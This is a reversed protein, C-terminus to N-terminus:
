GESRRPELCKRKGKGAKNLDMGTGSRTTNKQRFRVIFNEKLDLSEDSINEGLEHAGMSPPGESQSAEKPQVQPVPIQMVPDVTIESIDNSERVTGSSTNVVASVKIRQQVGVSCSGTSALGKEMRLKKRCSPCYWKRKPIASLPRQLCYTHYGDDCGDCLVILEDNEDVNCVRCLCSPCYWTDPPISKLPPKLCSLHFFKSHCNTNSCEILHDDDRKGASCVKCVKRIVPENNHMEPEQTSNHVETKEGFSQMEFEERDSPLEAEKRNCDPEVEERGTDPEMQRSLRECVVCHHEENGMNQVSAMKEKRDDYSDVESLGKGSEACSICYWSGTPIEELPPSLCYMHYAAECADCLLICDDHENVGCARCVGKIGSLDPGESCPLDSQECLVCENICEMGVNKPAIGKNKMTFSTEKDTSMDMDMPTCSLNDIGIEGVSRGIQESSQLNRTTTHPPGIEETRLNHGVKFNTKSILHQNIIKHPQEDLSDENASQENIIKENMDFSHSQEAEEEILTAVQKQYADHSYQLLKDALLVMEQGAARVNKWMQQMDSAFLEPSKGYTGASMRLKILRFDFVENTTSGAFITYLLNCLTAFMDASTIELFVNQCRETVLDSAPFVKHVTKKRSFQNRLVGNENDSMGQVSMSKEKYAKRGAQKNCLEEGCYRARVSLIAEKLFITGNTSSVDKEITHQLMERAGEPPGCALAKLICNRLGNATVHSSKSVQDLAEVWHGNQRNKINERKKHARSNGSPSTNQLGLNSGSLHQSETKGLVRGSSNFGLKPGHEVVLPASDEQQIRSAKIKPSIRSYPDQEKNEVPISDERLNGPTQHVHSVDTIVYTSADASSRRAEPINSDDEIGRSGKNELSANLNRVVAAMSKFRKNEPSIYIRNPRKNQTRIDVMWGDGLTLGRKNVYQKFKELSKHEAHTMRDVIPSKKKSTGCESFHIASKSVDKLISTPCPESIPMPSNTEKLSLLTDVVKGNHEPFSEASVHNSEVYIQRKVPSPDGGINAPNFHNQEQSGSKQRINNGDSGEYCIKRGDSESEKEADMNIGSKQRINNEESGEYCIKRGNSESEKVADKNIGLKQMVNNEESGECCIKRGDSESEKAADMDIGLKQRINNEESGEFCMKRGDSESEKAADMNICNVQTKCKLMRVAPIEKTELEADQEPLQTNTPSIDLSTSRIRQRKSSRLERDLGM